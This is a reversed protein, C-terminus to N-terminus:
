APGLYHTIVSLRTAPEGCHGSYPSLGGPRGSGATSTPHSPGRSSPTLELWGRHWRLRVVLAAILRWQVLVAADVDVVRWSLTSWLLWSLGVARLLTQLRALVCVARPLARRIPFLLRDIM